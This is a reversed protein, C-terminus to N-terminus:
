SPQGCRGSFIDQLTAARLARVVLYAVSVLHGLCLLAVCWPLWTSLRREVNWMWAAVVFAGAYVDVLTVVGWRDAALHSLGASLTSAMSAWVIGGALTLALIAGAGALFRTELGSLKM